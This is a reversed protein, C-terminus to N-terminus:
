AGEDEENQGIDPLYMIVVLVALIVLVVPDAPWLLAM